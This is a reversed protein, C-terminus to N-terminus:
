LQIFRGSRIYYLRNVLTESAARLDVGANIGSAWLMGDDLHFRKADRCSFPRHVLFRRGPPLHSLVLIHSSFRVDTCIEVQVKVQQLM